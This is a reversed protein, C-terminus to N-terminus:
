YITLVKINIGKGNCYQKIELENDNTIIKELNIPFISNGDFTSSIRILLFLNNLFYVHRIYHHSILGQSITTSLLIDEKTINSNDKDYIQNYYNIINSMINNINNEQQLFEIIYLLCTKNNIWPKIWEAKPDLISLIHAPVFYTNKLSNDYPICILKFLNFIIEHLNEKSIKYYNSLIIKKFKLLFKM